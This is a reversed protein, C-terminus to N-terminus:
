SSSTPPNAEIPPYDFAIQAAVEPPFAGFPDLTVTHETGILTYHLHHRQVIM